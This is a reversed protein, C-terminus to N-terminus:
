VKDDVVSQINRRKKLTVNFIPQQVFNRLDVNVIRDTRVVCFDFVDLLEDLADDNM